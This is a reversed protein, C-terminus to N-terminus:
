LESRKSSQHSHKRQALVAAAKLRDATYDLGQGSADLSHRLQKQENLNQLSQPSAHQKYAEHLFRPVPVPRNHWIASEKWSQWHKRASGGIGPRRSMQIFPPQYEYVEGTEPDVREGKDLKWGVKKAAYGAVYAIAAPSLPDVRVHGFPWTDQISPDDSLGFLIAHYHPRNTKEGYEGSAFFRITRNPHRARLRKLWASLHTKQLTPPVYHDSYTLTSWCGESHDQLELQCRVAWDRAKDMRCSLCGGCPLRLSETDPKRDLPERLVVGGATRWAPIPHLCAM